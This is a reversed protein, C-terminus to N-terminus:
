RFVPLAGGFLRTIEHAKNFIVQPRFECKIFFIFYPKQVQAIDCTKGFIDAFLYPARRRFRRVKGSRREDHRDIVSAPVFNHAAYFFKDFRV